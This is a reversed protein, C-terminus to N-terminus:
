FPCTLIAGTTDTTSIGATQTTDDAKLAFTLDTTSPGFMKGTDGSTVATSLTVDGQIQVWCYEATGSTGVLTGANVGAAIPIDDADDADVVGYSNAHGTAAFYLIQGGIAAAVTATTNQVKMYKYVKAGEFRITGVPEQATSNVDTLKTVFTQKLGSM